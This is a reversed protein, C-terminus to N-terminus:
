RVGGVRPSLLEALGLAQGRLEGPDDRGLGGVEGEEAGAHAVQGDAAQAAALGITSKSTPMGPRLRAVWTPMKAVVPM